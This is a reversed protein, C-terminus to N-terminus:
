SGVTSYLNLLTFGRNLLKGQRSISGFLIWDPKRSDRDFSIRKSPPPKESLEKNGQSSENDNM